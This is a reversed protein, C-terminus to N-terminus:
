RIIRAAVARAEEASRAPAIRAVVTTAKVRIALTPGPTPASSQAGPRRTLASAGAAGRRIAVAYGSHESEVHFWAVDSLAIARTVARREGNKLVATVRAAGGWSPFLVEVARSGAGTVHWETEIHDAM